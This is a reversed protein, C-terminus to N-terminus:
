TRKNPNEEDYAWKLVNDSIYERIRNLDDEGRIIHEYFSRQWGFERYGADHITKSARAKFHRVIKGLTRKSNKTLIWKKTPTQNMLGGSSQTSNSPAVHQAGVGTNKQDWILIIGHFHNPMVVFEDLEIGTFYNPVELWCQKAIEGGRSLIMAENRIEGFSCQKDHTCITVFYGGESSYDFQSLRVSRRHHIDPNYKSKGM